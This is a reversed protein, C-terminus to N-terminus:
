VGALEEVGDKGRRSELKVYLGEVGDVCCRWGGEEVVM